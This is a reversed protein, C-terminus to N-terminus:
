YLWFATGSSSAPTVNLDAELVQMGGECLLAAAEDIFGHDDGIHPMQQGRASM